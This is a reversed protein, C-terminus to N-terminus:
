KKELRKADEKAWREIADLFELPQSMYTLYDWNM